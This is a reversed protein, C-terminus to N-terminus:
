EEPCDKLYFFISLENVSPFVPEPFCYGTGLDWLLHCFYTSRSDSKKMVFPFFDQKYFEDGFEDM